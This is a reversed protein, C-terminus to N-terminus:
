KVIVAGKAEFVIEKKPETIKAIEEESKKADKAYHQLDEVSTVKREAFGDIVVKTGPAMDKPMFFGYDKFKVFMTEKDSIKVTMFCGKKKCVNVVEGEVKMDAKTAAGLKSNVETASIINGKTVGEGFVQGEVKDQAFAFSAFACFVLSLVIKKM